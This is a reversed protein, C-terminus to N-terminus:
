SLVPDLNSMELVHDNSDIPKPTVTVSLGFAGAYRTAMLMLNADNNKTFDSLRVCLLTDSKTKMMSVAKTFGPLHQDLVAKMESLTMGSKDNIRRGFGVIRGQTTQRFIVRYNVIAGSRM